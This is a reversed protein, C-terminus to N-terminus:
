SVPEFLATVHLRLAVLDDLCTHLFSRALPEKKEVKELWLHLGDKGLEQLSFFSCHRIWEVLAFM